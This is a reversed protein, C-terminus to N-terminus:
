AKRTVPRHAHAVADELEFCLNQYHWSVAVCSFIWTALFLFLGALGMMSMRAVEGSWILTFIVVMGVAYALGVMLRWRVLRRELRAVDADM